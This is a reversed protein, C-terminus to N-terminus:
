IKLSVITFFVLSITPLRLLGLAVRVSTRNRADVDLVKVPFLQHRSLLGCLYSVLLPKVVNHYWSLM